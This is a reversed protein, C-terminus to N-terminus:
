RLSLVFMFVVQVFSLLIVSTVPMSAANGGTEQSERPIVEDKVGAKPCIQLAEATLRRLETEISPREEPQCNDLANITCAIVDHTYPCWVNVNYMDQVSTSANLPSNCARLSECAVFSPREMIINTCYDSYWEGVTALTTETGEVYNPINCISLAGDGCRLMNTLVNCASNADNLTPSYNDTFDKTCMQLQTCAAYPKLNNDVIIENESVRCDEMLSTQTHEITDLIEDTMLGRCEDIYRNVCNSYEQVALCKAVKDSSDEAPRMQGLYNGCSSMKEQCMARQKNKRKKGKNGKKDSTVVHDVNNDIAMSETTMDDTDMTETVMADIEMTETTMPLIELPESTVAVESVVVSEDTTLDVVSEEVDMKSTMKSATTNESEMAEGTELEVGIENGMITETTLYEEMIEPLATTYEVAHTHSGDTTKYTEKEPESEPTPEPEPKPEPEPEPETTVAPEADVEVEPESTTEPYTPVVDPIVVGGTAEEVTLTATNSVRRGAVNEAVCAYDGTNERTPNILVLSNDPPMVINAIADMDIRVGNFTWYVKAAPVAEPPTCSLAAMVGAMSKTNEPNKQFRRKLYALNIYGPNSSILEETAAGYPFYHGDCVCTNDDTFGEADERNLDLSVSIVDGSEVANNEYRYDPVIFGSCRFTIRDVNKAACTITISQGRVIYYMSKPQETFMPHVTHGIETEPESSPEIESPTYYEPEATSAGDVLISETIPETVAAFTTLAAPPTQRTGATNTAVCVYRGVYRQSMDNIILSGTISIEINRDRSTDVRVGDKLWSVEPEPGGFPPTCMLEAPVGMQVQTDVPEMAFEDEIFAREVKAEPSEEREWNGSVTYWMTCICAYEESKLDDATVTITAEIDFKGVARNYTQKSEIEKPDYRRRNCRFTVMDANKVGCTIPVDRGQAMYYVPELPTSFYAEGPARGPTTPEPRAVPRTPPPRTVEVRPKVFGDEVTLRANGSYRVGAVNSASCQYDGGNSISASEITLSGDEDVVYYGSRTDIEEGNFYWRIEAPPKSKPAGCAMTVSGDTGVVQSEPEAVFQEGLFAVEIYGKSSPKSKWGQVGPETYWSICNCAYSGDIGYRRIDEEKVTFTTEYITGGQPNPFEQKRQDEDGLRRNNCRVTLIKAGNVRCTIDVPEDATVYYLSDPSKEYIPGDELPADSAELRDEETSDGISLQAPASTRKAASNRALCSYQGVDKRRFKKIILLGRSDVEFNNDNAHVKRGDKLWSITPTPQGAPPSCMLEVKSGIPASKSRPEEVFEKKLFATSIQTRRTRIPRGSTVDGICECWFPNRTEYGRIDAKTVELTGKIIEKGSPQVRGVVQLKNIPIEKACSFRISDVNEAECVISAPRNKTVYYSGAPRTIFRPSRQGQCTTLLILFTVSLACTLCDTAKM